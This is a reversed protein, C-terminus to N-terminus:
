RSLLFLLAMGDSQKPLSPMARKKNHPKLPETSEQMLYAVLWYDSCAGNGEVQM